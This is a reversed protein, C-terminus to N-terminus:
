AAKKSRYYERKHAKIAEKNKQYYNRSHAALCVRCVRGGRRRIRVQSAGHGCRHIPRGPKNREARVSAIGALMKEENYAYSM